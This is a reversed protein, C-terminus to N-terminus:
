RLSPGSGEPGWYDDLVIRGSLPAFSHPQVPSYGSTFMNFAHTSSPDFTDWEFWIVPAGRYARRAVIAIGSSLPHVYYIPSPNMQQNLVATAADVVANM